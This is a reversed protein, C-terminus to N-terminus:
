YGLMMIQFLSVSYSQREREASEKTRGHVFHTTVLTYDHIEDIDRPYPHKFVILKGPPALLHDTVFNNTITGGELLSAQYVSNAYAPLIGSKLPNM